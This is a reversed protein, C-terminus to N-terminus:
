KHMFDAQVGGASLRYVHGFSHDRFGSHGTPESDDEIEIYGNNVNGRRFAYHIESQGRIKRFKHAPGLPGVAQQINDVHCPCRFLGPNPTIARPPDLCDTHWWLGCASCPLIPRDERTAQKCSHCLVPNNDKDVIQHFDFEKKDIAKPKRRDSTLQRPVVLASACQHVITSFSLSAAPHGM